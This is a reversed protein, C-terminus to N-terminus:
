ATRIHEDLTRRPAPPPTKAPYGVRALMQVRVGERAGTDRQMQAYLAAMEPYEQLAQSWPHVALGRATAALNLRAYARGAAIQQQRANGTSNIWVFAPANEALPRWAEISPKTFAHDPNALVDYSVLGLASAAEVFAGEVAIGDRHRAIEARGVRLLRATEHHAHPTHAETDFARWALDRLADRQAGDLAWSISLEPALQAARALAAIEAQPVTRPEYAERNTRRQLINAFLPDRAGGPALKVHAFPRADLRQGPAGDPFLTISADHGNEAAALSMLELFAGCGITIQRDFPDTEPLLRELDAFLLIEDQGRLEVIWPQRNHPNPALIAHALAHRRPDREGAGPARWAAIPDPLAEGSCGAAFASAALAQLVHRRALTM